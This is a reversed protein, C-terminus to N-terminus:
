SNRPPCWSSMLLNKDCDYQQSQCSDELSLGLL